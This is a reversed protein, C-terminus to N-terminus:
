EPAFESLDDAPGAQVSIARSWPDGPISATDEAAAPVVAALVAMLVALLVALSKKGKLMYDDRRKYNSKIM